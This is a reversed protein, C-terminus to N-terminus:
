STWLGHVNCLERATIGETDDLCFTAEPKDGASLRASAIVKGKKVIEILEIWHKEEMPHPVSGVRVTANNGEIEIVPVHKEKGEQEATKVEFLKMNQGCCVLDGNGAEIVSVVNGCVDCKYIQDVETM